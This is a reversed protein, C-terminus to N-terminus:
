WREENMYRQKEKHREPHLAEHCAACLSILNSDELALEPADKLHKVHHVTTAPRYKGKTRCLQCARHDRALIAERKKVWRYTRYLAHWGYPSEKTISRVWEGTAEQQETYDMAPMLFPM